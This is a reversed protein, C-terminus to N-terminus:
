GVKDSRLSSLYTDRALYVSFSSLFFFLFSCPDPGGPRAREGYILSSTGADVLVIDERQDQRVTTSTRNGTGVRWPVLFSNEAWCRLRPTTLLVFSLVLRVFM